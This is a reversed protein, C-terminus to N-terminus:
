ENYCKGKKDKRKKKYGTSMIDKDISKRDQKLEIM